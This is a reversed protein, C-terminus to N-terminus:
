RSGCGGSRGNPRVRSSMRTRRSAQDPRRFDAATERSLESVRGALYALSALYAIRSERSAIMPSQVVLRASGAAAGKWRQAPRSEIRGLQAHKAVLREHGRGYGFRQRMVGMATSRTRYDVVARPEFGISLGEYQARLCFDADDSGYDFTEDFGGVADFVSRRFGLAAGMSYQWGFVTPLETHQLSAVRSWSSGNIRTPDLSAGVIDHRRLGDLMAMLWGATVEDDADCCVISRATAHAVGRNRSRNLGPLPEAVIRLTPLREEWRAAIARTSDTSGNDVLVVEWPFDAFQSALAGLQRELTAAGNRVCLLVTVAPEPM